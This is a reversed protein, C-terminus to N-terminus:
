EGGIKVIWPVDGVTCFSSCTHCAPLYLACLREDADLPCQLLRFWLRVLLCTCSCCQAEQPWLEPNARQM